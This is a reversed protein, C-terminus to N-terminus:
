VNLKRSKQAEDTSSFHNAARADNHHVAADGDEAGEDQDEREGPAM